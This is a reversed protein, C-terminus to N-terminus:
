DLTEVVLQYFKQDSSSMEQSDLLRITKHTSTESVEEIGHLDPQLNGVDDSMALNWSVSAARAKVYEFEIGAYSFAGIESVVAKIGSGNPEAPHKGWLYEILTPIGDNDYDNNQDLFRALWQATQPADNEGLVTAHVTAWDNFNSYSDFDPAASLKPNPDLHDRIFDGDYDAFDLYTHASDLTIPMGNHDFLEAIQIAGDFTMGSFNTVILRNLWDDNPARFKLLQPTEGRLHIATNSFPEDEEINSIVCDGSVELRGGDALYLLGNSYGEYTGDNNTDLEQRFDGHVRILSGGDGFSELGIRGGGQQILDGSVILTADAMAYDGATVDFRLDGFVNMTGYFHLIETNPLVSLDGNVNIEVDELCAWSNIFHGIEIPMGPVTNITRLSTAALGGFGIDPLKTFLVNPNQLDIPNDSDRPQSGIDVTQLGSGSFRLRNLDVAGVVNPNEKHQTVNGRFEILGTGQEAVGFFEADGDIRIYGNNAFHYPDAGQIYDGHIHMQSAASQFYIHAAEEYVDGFIEISSQDVMSFFTQIPQDTFDADGHIKLQSDGTFDIAGVQITNGAVTNIITHGSPDPSYLIGPLQAFEVDPNLLIYNRLEENEWEIFSIVQSGSGATNPM